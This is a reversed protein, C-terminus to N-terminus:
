ELSVILFQAGSLKTEFFSEFAKLAAPKMESIARVITSGDTGAAGSLGEESFQEFYNTTEDADLEFVACNIIGLNKM